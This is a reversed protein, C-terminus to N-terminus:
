LSEPKQERQLLAQVAARPELGDYLVRCVQETIPMEVGCKRALGQVERAAKVGEAVQRVSSCAEALSLGRALALGVRRNRSWLRQTGTSRM